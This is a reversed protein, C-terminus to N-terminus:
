SEFWSWRFSDPIADPGFQQHGLRRDCVDVYYTEKAYAALGLAMTRYGLDITKGSDLQEHFHVTATSVATNSRNAFEIMVHACTDSNDFGNGWNIMQLTGQPSHTTTAESPASSPSPAETETVTAVPTPQAPTPTPPAGTAALPHVVGNHEGGILMAAIVGAVALPTAIGLGLAFWRITSREGTRDGM